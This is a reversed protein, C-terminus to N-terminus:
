LRFDGFTRFGVEPPQKGIRFYKLVLGDGNFARVFV